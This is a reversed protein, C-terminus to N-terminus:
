PGNWSRFPSIAPDPGVVVQGEAAEVGAAAVDPSFEL